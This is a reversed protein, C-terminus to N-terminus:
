QARATAPATEPRGSRGLGNQLLIERLNANHRHLIEVERELRIVM